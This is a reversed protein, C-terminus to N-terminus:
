NATHSVPAYVHGGYADSRTVLQVSAGYPVATVSAKGILGVPRGAPGAALYTVVVGDANVLYPAIWLEDSLFRARVSPVRLMFPM